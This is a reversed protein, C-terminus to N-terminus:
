EQRSLQIYRLSGCVIAVMGAILIVNGPGTDTLQNTSSDSPLTNQTTPNTTTQNTTTNTSHGQNTDAPAPTSQTQATNTATQNDATDSNHGFFIWALLIVILIFAIGVLVYRLLPTAVYHQRPQEEDM